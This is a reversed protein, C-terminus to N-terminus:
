EVSELEAIAGQLYYYEWRYQAWYNFWPAHKQLLVRKVAILAPSIGLKLGVEATPHKQWVKVHARGASFAKEAINAMYNDTWHEAVSDRLLVFSAGYQHLRWGLDMDEGGYTSFDGDYGDIADFTERTMSIASSNTNWWGHVHRLIGADPIEAPAVQLSIGIQKPKEHLTIHPTLWGALPIVDDDSFLLVKSTAHKAGANRAYAAHKGPTHIWSLPWPADPQLETLYEETDDTCNDLVVIIEVHHTALVAPQALAQMKKELLDRRNHTPIIISVEPM